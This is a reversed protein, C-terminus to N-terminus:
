HLCTDGAPPTYRALINQECLEPTDYGRKRSLLSLQDLVVETGEIRWQELNHVKISTRSNTIAARLVLGLLTFGFTLALTTGLILITQM